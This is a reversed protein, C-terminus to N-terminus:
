GFVCCGVKLRVTFKGGFTGLWEIMLVGGKGDPRCGHLKRKVVFPFLSFGDVRESKKRRKKEEKRITPRGEVRM